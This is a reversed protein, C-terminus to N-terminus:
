SGSGGRFRNGDWAVMYNGDPPCLPLLAEPIGDRNEDSYRIAGCLAQNGPLIVQWRSVFRNSRLSFIQVMGGHGVVAIEPFGDSDMDQGPLAKESRLDQPVKRDEDVSKVWFEFGRIQNLYEGVAQAEEERSFFGINVRYWTEGTAVVAEEINAPFGLSLLDDVVRESSILENSAFLQLEHLEPIVAPEVPFPSESVEESVPLEAREGALQIGEEIPPEAVSRIMGIEMPAEEMFVRFLHFEQGDYLRLRMGGKDQLLFFRSDPMTLLRTDGELNEIEGAVLDTKTSIITLLGSEEQLLYLYRGIEDTCLTAEGRRDIPIDSITEGTDLDIGRVIGSRPHYAYIKGSGPAHILNGPVEQLDIDFIRSLDDIRFAELSVHGDFGRTALYVRGRSEVIASCVIRDLNITMSEGGEPALVSLVGSTGKEMVLIIQDQGAVFYVDEAYQNLSRDFEITDELLDIGILRRALRDLVILRDDTQALRVDGSIAPIAVSRTQTGTVTPVLYVSESTLATFFSASPASGLYIPEVPVELESGIMELTDMKLYKVQGGRRPCFVVGVESRGQSGGTSELDDRGGEGRDRGCGALVLLFFAFGWFAGAIKNSM